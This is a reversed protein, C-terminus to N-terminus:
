PQAAMANFMAPDIATVHRVIRWGEGERRFDDTIVATAILAPMATREYVALYYTARVLDGEETLSLNTVAHRKGTIYGLAQNTELYTRIGEVGAMPDSGTVEFVAGADWVSLYQDYNEADIDQNMQNVIQEIAARVTPDTVPGAQLPLALSLAALAAFLTYRM